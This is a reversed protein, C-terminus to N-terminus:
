ERQGPYVALTYKPQKPPGHWQFFQTLEDGLKRRRLLGRHSLEDAEQLFSIPLGDGEGRRNLFEDGSMGLHQAPEGLLEVVGKNISVLSCGNCNSGREQADIPKPKIEVVEIGILEQILKVFAVLEAPLPQFWPKAPV